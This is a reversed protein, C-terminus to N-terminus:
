SKIFSTFLHYVSYMYTMEYVHLVRISLKLPFSQNYKQINKIPSQCKMYLIRVDLDKMEYSTISHDRSQVLVSM